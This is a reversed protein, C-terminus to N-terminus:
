NDETRSAPRLVHGDENVFCVSYRNLISNNIELAALKL